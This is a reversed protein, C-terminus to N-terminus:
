KVLYLGFVNCIILELVRKFIYSKRIRETSPYNLQYCCTPAMLYRFYHNFQINQPYELAMEMQDEKVNFYQSLEALKPQKKQTETYKKVRTMLRRNDYMVHHFSFLKLLQGVTFMMFYLAMM